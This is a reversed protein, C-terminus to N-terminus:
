LRDAIWADPTWRQQAAQPTMDYAEAVQRWTAGSARLATVTRYEVYPTSAHVRRLIELTADTSDRSARTRGLQSILATLNDRLDQAEEIARATAATRENTSM